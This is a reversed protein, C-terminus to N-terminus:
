ARARHPRPHRHVGHHRRVARRPGLHQDRHRDVGADAHRPAPQASAAHRHVARLRGRRRDGDARGSVAHHQLRQHRPQAPLDRRPRGVLAVVASALPLVTAAVTRFVMALIILAALFGILVSSGSGESQGIGAFANGTFEVQLTSSRLTKLQDYRRQVPGPRLEGSKWTVSVLATNSGRGTNLLKPNGAGAPPARHRLRAVAVADHDARRQRPRRVAECPRSGAAAPPGTFAGSRRNKLVITGSAGNQNDLGAEKLLNAM